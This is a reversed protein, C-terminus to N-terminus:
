AAVETLALLRAAAATRLPDPRLADPRPAVVPRDSGRILVDPGVVASMAAIAAPGNSSTDYVALPTGRTTTPGARASASPRSRRSGRSCRSACGCGRILPARGPASGWGPPRCRRCTPPSPRGGPPLGPGAPPSPVWPAPGPHVLLPANREELLGLLPACRAVGDPDAIAGALVQAGDGLVASVAVSAARHVIPPLRFGADRLLAAGTRRPTLDGAGGLGVFAHEIVCEAHGGAGLGAIPTPGEPGAVRPVRARRSRPSPPTTLM